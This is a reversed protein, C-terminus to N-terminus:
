TLFLYSVRMSAAFFFLSFILKKGFFWLQMVMPKVMSIGDVIKRHGDYLSFLMFVGYFATNKHM